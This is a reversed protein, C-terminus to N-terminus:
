HQAGGIPPPFVNEHFENTLRKITPHNSMGIRRARQVLEILSHAYSNAMDKEDAADWVEELSQLEEIDLERERLEAEIERIEKLLVKQEDTLAIKAKAKMEYEWFNYLFIRFTSYCFLVFTCSFRGESM